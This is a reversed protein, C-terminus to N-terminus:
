LSLHPFGTSVAASLSFILSLHIVQTLLGQIYMYHTGMLKCHIINCICHSSMCIIYM